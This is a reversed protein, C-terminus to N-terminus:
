YIPIHYIKNIQHLGTGGGGRVGELPRCQQFWMEYSTKPHPTFLTYICRLFFTWKEHTYLSVTYTEWSTKFKIYKIPIRYIKNIQHLGTRGGRGRVVKCLQNQLPTYFLTYMCSQFFIWKEQTYLSM